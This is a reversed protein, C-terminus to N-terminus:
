FTHSSVLFLSSEEAKMWRVLDLVMGIATGKDMLADLTAYLEFENAM